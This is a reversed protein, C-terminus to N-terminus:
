VEFAVLIVTTVTSFVLYYLVEHKHVERATLHDGWEGLLTMFMSFPGCRGPRRLRGYRSLQAYTMGMDVQLCVCGRTVGGANCNCM